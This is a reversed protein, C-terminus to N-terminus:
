YRYHEPKYPGEVDVGIYEAQEKTLKTLTGGLAEVHIKAVKEDLHKPLRYVENDYEDPKTWLEIQAIVQNSFSNSMVFSPHGTANGLNLLRGESLVIISHGDGFRFEDVQPKINIRTVEGSRELGAMDIENDFHGINGLIAQHKMQKMHEFTIIDKNGTSTIVIDAWGIAQEVTKVEFGDMLAQLANIPDVETVAVRAGQGRLAEACGKGVDGYGCVLAAKGGILVDTGRNIGDLLSHRTGYKNDFKSKTVSDNVNIAPFTLEGAAAVQYLRLVGTTTEETVGQVSEAIKSWKGKDAELSRRLLNLFVKYEDSDQEDDTPPVVGAKEFQAGKLVLMTADGGDDLIMNAPKDADPWTLMQEAAWWYEELTEGKWAFVPTGKPEEPTGHPGVVIAAAAHDQTSFINCSAWRVEAGLATLTEILVATQITMHLSGSIRAGKLPLVEAYERRLAMLGPMEHEALRIEKRGFEALSLDAVKFDIGNRSEAVPTTSVSTTM